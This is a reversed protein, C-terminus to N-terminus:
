SRMLAHVPYFLSWRSKLLTVLYNAFAHYLLYTSYMVPPM